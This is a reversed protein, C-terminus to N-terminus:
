VHLNQNPLESSHGSIRRKESAEPSRLQQEALVWVKLLLARLSVQGSKACMFIGSM